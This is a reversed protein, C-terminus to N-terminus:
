APIATSGQTISNKSLYHGDVEGIDRGSLFTEILQTTVELQELHFMHDAKKILTFVSDPSRDHLQKHHAPTTFIDFEGTLMLTNCLPVPFSKTNNMLREISFIFKDLEAYTASTLKRIMMTSIYNQLRIDKSRDKNLLLATLKEAFEDRCGKKASSLGDEWKVLTEPKFRDMFGGLILKNMKEPSKGALIYSVVAGYSTGVINVKEFGMTDIFHDISDALLEMKYSSDLIDSDGFGLLDIMITRSYKASTKAYNQVNQISQFAGGLYITPVDLRYSDQNNIDQYIIRLGMFKHYKIDQMENM